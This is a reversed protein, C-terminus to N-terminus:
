IGMFQFGFLPRLNCFPCFLPFKDLKVPFMLIFNYDFSKRKHFLLSSERLFIKHFPRDPNSLFPTAGQCHGAATSSAPYKGRRIKSLLPRRARASLPRRCVTHPACPRPLFPFKEYAEEKQAGSPGCVSSYLSALIGRGPCGQRGLATGAAPM